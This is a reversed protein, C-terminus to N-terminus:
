RGTICQFYVDTLDPTKQVAQPCPAAPSFCIRKGNSHYLPLSEPVAAEAPLEWVTGELRAILEAQTGEAQLRGEHLLLVRDTINEVDPVIHTSILIIRDKKLSCLYNKLEEREYIDLGASPEDLLLIDPDGLFAGCLALRQRMGGSYAGIKKRYVDLLGFQQLLAQGQEVVQRRDLGRLSGCFTLYEEATYSRFMPQSQFLVSLHRLYANGLRRIEGGADPGNWEVAGQSEPLLTSLIHILTSKGAGNAGLLATIGPTLTCSVDQLATKKGFQRSIQHLTLTNM